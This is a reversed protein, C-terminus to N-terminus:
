MVEKVLYVGGADEASAEVLITFGYKIYFKVARDNGKTVGAIVRGFNNERAWKFIADMLGWAVNTGRHEPSVWVQLLEGTDTQDEIRVLAAMGIPADESFAIFTAGDTGQATSETRERWIEASRETLAEYTTGFAYPSDQVSALRIQKYLDTEGIQIRRITIM